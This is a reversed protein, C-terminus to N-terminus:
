QADPHLEPKRGANSTASRAATRGPLPASRSTAGTLPDVLGNQSVGAAMGFQNVSFPASSAGGPLPGLEIRNGNQWKFGPSVLCDSNWCQTPNPDHVASDVNGVFAGSDNLTNGQEDLYSSPGGFTGVDVLVYPYRQQYQAHVASQGLGAPVALLVTALLCPAVRSRM